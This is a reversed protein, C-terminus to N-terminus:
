PRRTSTVSRRCSIPKPCTLPMRSVNFKILLGEVANFCGTRRQVLRLRTRLVDRAHRLHPSIQHARPIMDLRLLQALTESDVKDTKVKAYTIAKLYRAHALTLVIDHDLCFDHLWDWGTTSEVVAHHQGPLTNFYSTLQALHNDLKQQKIIQGLANVTTIFSSRKHLDIGSYYTTPEM